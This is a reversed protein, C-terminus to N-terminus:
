VSLCSQSPDAVFYSTTNTTVAGAGLILLRSMISSIPTNQSNFIAWLLLITSWLGIYGLTGKLRLILDALSFFDLCFYNFAQNSFPQFIQTNWFWWRRSTILYNFRTFYWDTMTIFRLKFSQNRCNRSTTIGRSLYSWPNTVALSYFPNPYISHPDTSQFLSNCDIGILM